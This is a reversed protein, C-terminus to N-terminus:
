DAKDWQFMRGVRVMPACFDLMERIPSPDVWGQAYSTLPVSFYRNAMTEANPMCVLDHAPEVQNLLPILEVPGGLILQNM